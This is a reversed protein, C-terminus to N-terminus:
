GIEAMQDAHIVSNRPLAGIWIREILFLLTFLGAIPIPAYVVAVSLDPFEAVTSNRTVICLQIGYYVMFLATAAVCANVAMVMWRKVGPKVVNVLAMVAVHVNARFAAAGGIFSFMVMLVVSAPEPWSLPNNMVYRMFVGVPIFITIAVIALGAVGICGVYLWEMALTYRQKLTM